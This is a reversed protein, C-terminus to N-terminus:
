GRAAGVLPGRHELRQAPRDGARRQALDHAAPAVTAILMQSPVRGWGRSITTGAM